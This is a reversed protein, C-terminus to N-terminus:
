FSKRYGLAFANSGSDEAFLGFGDSRHHLRFYLADGNDGVAFAAEYLLYILTRQSAGRRDIEVQPTESTFSLGLGFAFSDFSTVWPANPRFRITAPFALEQYTDKGFHHNLQAEYGLLWRHDRLAREYGFSLGVFGNGSFRLEDPNFVVNIGNESMAGGTVSYFLRPATDQAVASGSMGIVLAALGGVIGRWVM